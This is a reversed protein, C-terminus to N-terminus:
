DVNNNGEHIKKIIDFKEDISKAGVTMLTLLSTVLEENKEDHSLEVIRHFGSIFGIFTLLIEDIDEGKLDNIIGFMKEANDFMDDPPVSIDLDSISEKMGEVIEEIKM